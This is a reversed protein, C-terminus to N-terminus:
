WRPPCTAPAAPGSRGPRAPGPGTTPSLQGSMRARSDSRSDSLALSASSASPTTSRPSAVGACIPAKRVSSCAFPSVASSTVPSARAMSSAATGHGRPGPGSPATVTSRTPVPPSRSALMLTVVRAAKMVAPHPTGTHLCPLRAADEDTPVASTSSASPTAISIPGSPTARQTASAPMPNQKACRKWGAIRKTPGTRLSSPTGVTKLKRPGSTLGARIVCWSTPTLSGTIPGIMAPTKPAVPLRWVKITCASSPSSSNLTM